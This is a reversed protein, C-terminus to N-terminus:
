VVRERPEKMFPLLVLLGATLVGLVVVGMMLSGTWERSLGLLLPGGFGGIEAATFFLGSAAGIRAAGIGRTEMLVLTLIPM